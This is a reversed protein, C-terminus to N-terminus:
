SLWPKRQHARERQMMVVIRLRRHAEVATALDIPLDM